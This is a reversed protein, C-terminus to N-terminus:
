IFFEQGVQRRTCLYSIWFLPCFRTVLSVELKETLAESPKVSAYPNKEWNMTMMTSQTTMTIAMIVIILFQM